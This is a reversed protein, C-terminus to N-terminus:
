NDEVVGIFLIAVINELSKLFFLPSQRNNADYITKKDERRIFWDVMQAKARKCSFIYIRTDRLVDRVIHLPVPQTNKLVTLQDM